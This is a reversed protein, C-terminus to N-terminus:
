LPEVIWRLRLGDKVGYAVSKGDATFQPQFVQEYAPHQRITKGTADAVVVFRKGDQRARYVLFRGDPSLRPAVARDFAPGAQGNAVVFWRGGRTAAYAYTRGDSSCTLGEIEEVAEEAAGGTAFPQLLRVSSGELLTIGASKRGPRFVPPGFYQGPPLQAERGDLVMLPQGGREALYALTLDDRDLVPSSVADYGPERRVQDPHAFAVVVAREKEGSAAVAALSTRDESARLDGARADVVVPSALALDSVVLRGFGRDDTDAIFALRQSDASFVPGLYTTRAPASVAGDVVLLWAEGAKAQYALHAGDPSFMPGQIEAYGKGEVGDVVVRWTGELLAAYACRRGDPSLVMAGIAAYAKGPRGNHVVRFAGGEPEAWAVGGGLEAFFFEPEGVAVESPLTALVAPESAVALPAPPSGAAPGTKGCRCGSLSLWLGCAAALHRHHRNM